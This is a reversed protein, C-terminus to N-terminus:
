ITPEQIGSVERDDKLVKQGMDKRYKILIQEIIKDRLALMAIALLAANEGRGVGVTAVPIGPPMQVASLLADLGDLKVDVPVAIVPRLTHAAVVGPLHAALGAIAIFIQSRSERVIDVTHQPTRHASAVRTEYHIEFEDLIKGAKDAIAKDSKSGMIITILTM